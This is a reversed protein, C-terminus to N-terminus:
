CSVFGLYNDGLLCRGLYCEFDRRRVHEQNEKRYERLLPTPIDEEDIRLEIKTLNLGEKLGKDRSWLGLSKLEFEPALRFVSLRWEGPQGDQEQLANGVPPNSLPGKVRGQNGDVDGPLIEGLIEGVTAFHFFPTRSQRSPEVNLNNGSISDWNLNYFGGVKIGDMWQGIDRHGAEKAKRKERRRERRREKRAQIRAQRQKAREAAVEERTRGLRADSMTSPLTSYEDENEDEDMDTLKDWSRDSADDYYEEESHDLDLDSAADSTSSILSGFDDSSANDSAAMIRRQEKEAEKVFKALALNRELPVCKLCAKGRKQKGKDDKWSFGLILTLDIPGSTAYSVLVGLGDEPVPASATYLTM